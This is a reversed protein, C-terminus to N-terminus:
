ATETQSDSDRIVNRAFMRSLLASSVIRFTAPLQQSNISVIVFWSGIIFVYSHVDVRKMLWRTCQGNAM